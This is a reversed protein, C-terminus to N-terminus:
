ILRKEIGLKAVDINEYIEEVPLEVMEEDSSSVYFQYPIDDSPEIDVYPRKRITPKVKRNQM